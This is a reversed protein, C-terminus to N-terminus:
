NWGQGEGAAPSLDDGGRYRVLARLADATAQLLLLVPMVLLLTKLVYLFPLGGADASGEGTAWSRAVYDWSLALIAICLPTLLLLTGLLDVLARRKPPWQRYFIDVRVHEDLSLTYAMGLMFLAAHLYLTAEQLAINGYDFGYRLVVVAVTGLVLLLSLWAVAHGCALALRDLQDRLQILRQM